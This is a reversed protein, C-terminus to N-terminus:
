EYSAAAEILAQEKQRRFSLGQDKWIKKIASKQDGLLAWLQKHTQIRHLVGEKLLFLQDMSHYFREVENGSVRERLEKRRRALVTVRGANLVQYFGSPGGPLDVNMFRRGSAEFATVKSQVFEIPFSGFPHQTLVRQHVADFQMLTNGYILGAYTITGSEFDEWLYPTGKINKPLPAVEVGQHVLTHGQASRETDNLVASLAAVRLSDVPQSTAYFGFVCCGFVGLIRFGMRHSLLRILQTNRKKKVFAIIETHYDSYDLSVSGPLPFWVSDEFVFVSSDHVCDRIINERLLM